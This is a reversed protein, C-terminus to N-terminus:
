QRDALEEDIANMDNWEDDAEFGAEPDPVAGTFWGRVYEIDNAMKTWHTDLEKYRRYLEGSTKGKLDTM